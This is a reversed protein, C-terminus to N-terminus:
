PRRGNDTPGDVAGARSGRPRVTKWRASVHCQECAGGFAGDHVDDRRHCSVCSTGLAATARGAPAPAAHCRECALPAHAGDLVFPTRRTHDFSGLGWHRTNHCGACDTGLRAAHRDDKRHCAICERPADRFRPTAHCDRCPTRLHAGVLVYRTRAHDFTPVKWSREDHCSACRAGLQGEHRDNARHCAVCDTATGRLRRADAHCSKCALGPAAHADRLPFRTKAHDFKPASKWDREGHCAACDVGLTGEHRDEGRHCGVCDRPLRPPPAGPPLGPPASRHCSECRADRHRGRLAFDTRDHDFRGREQWRAETHCAGCDAGLRGEHRDDKRHCDICASGPKDRGLAFAGAASGAAPAGHCDACRAQRHRGRLAFRTVADHAFAAPKWARADHCSECREGFRGAHARRDDDRHCTTCARPTDKFRGDRHCADCRAAAHEGALAFRTKGHDFKANKWTDEGHCDACATGLGGRHVDDKHHCTRCDTDAERWKRGPRHCAACEAKAHRGRLPWDTAAHDFTARDLQVIRANRGRHDTHCSRCAAGARLRGHYGRRERMDAGVDKHCAMCLGDQAARDFRVHCQGCDDEWKAHGAIVDGPRLVSELSQARVAGGAAAVALALVLVLLPRWAWARLAAPAIARRFARPFAQAVAIALAVLWGAGGM